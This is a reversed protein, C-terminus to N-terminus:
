ELTKVIDRAFKTLMRRQEDDMKNVNVLLDALDQSQQLANLERKNRADTFQSWELYLKDLTDTDREPKGRAM